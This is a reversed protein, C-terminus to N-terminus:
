PIPISGLGDLISPKRRRKTPPPASEPQQAGMLESMDMGLIASHSSKTRLKMTWEPAWGKPANAPRVPHSFNAEPGFATMQLMGNPMAQAAEVPITCQSAQPGMLVKQGILRSVESESLYDAMVMGPMRVASSSWLVVTGDQQAGMAGAFYGLARPVSRWSLNIAGSPSASNQVELPALFDQHQALAFRIEPTYNGRVVHDGVLSGAAPVTTRSRENPWEGYTKHRGPSPPNMTQVNVASFDPPVQGAALKAFDVVMPQGPGAHEGCGWYILMRGKPREMQGTWPGPPAAPQRVPTVLPLSPGAGLGSPPLHEASPSPATRGTGLDLHLLHSYGSGMRGSMMAAAMGGGGGAGIMGGLGSSTEASMWYVATGGAGAQALAYTGSALLTGALAIGVLHRSKM